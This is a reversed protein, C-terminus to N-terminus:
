PSFKESSVNYQARQTCTCLKLTFNEYSTPNRCYVFKSLIDQLARSVNILCGWGDSTLVLSGIILRAAIIQYRSNRKSVHILKLGLMSSYNYGWYLIHSPIVYGTGFLPATTSTHSHITIGCKKMELIIRYSQFKAPTEATNSSLRRDFKLDIFETVHSRSKM